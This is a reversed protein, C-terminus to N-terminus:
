SFLPALCRVADSPPIGLPAPVTNPDPRFDDATMRIAELFLPKVQLSHDASSQASGDRDRDRDHAAKITRETCDKSTTTGVHGHDGKTGDHSRSQQDDSAGAEVDDDACTFALRQRMGGESGDVDTKSCPAGSLRTQLNGVHPSLTDGQLVRVVRDVHVQVRHITVVDIVILKRDLAQIVPQVLHSVRWWRADTM